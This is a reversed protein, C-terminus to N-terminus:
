LVKGRATALQMFKDIAAGWELVEKNFSKAILPHPEEKGGDIAINNAANQVVKTFITVKGLLSPETVAGDILLPNVVRLAFLNADVGRDIKARTEASLSAVNAMEGDAADHATALLDCFNQPLADVAKQISDDDKGGVLVGMMKGFAEQTNLAIEKQKEESKTELKNKRFEFNPMSRLEDHIQAVRTKFYAGGQHKIQVYSAFGIDDPTQPNGRLFGDLKAGGDQLAEKTDGGIFKRMEEGQSELPADKAMERAVALILDGKDPSSVRAMYSGIVDNIVHDPAGVSEGNPPMFIHMTRHLNLKHSENLGSGDPTHAAADDIFAETRLVLDATHEFDATKAGPGLQLFAETLRDEVYARREPTWHSLDLDGRERADSLVGSMTGLNALGEAQERENTKIRTAINHAEYLEDVVVGKSFDKGADTMTKFVREGVGKGFEADIATKVHDVAKERLADRAKLADSNRFFALFDVKNLGHKAHTHLGKVGDFRLHQQSGAKRFSDILGTLTTGKAPVGLNVSANVM